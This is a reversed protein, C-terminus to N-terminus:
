RVPPPLAAMVSMPKKVPSTAAEMWAPVGMRGPWGPGLDDALPGADQVQAHFPHHQHPGHGSEGRGQVGPRRDQPGAGRDQGGPEHGQDVGKQGDAELGVLGNGAQARVMKPAPSDPNKPVERTPRVPGPNAGMSIGKRESM